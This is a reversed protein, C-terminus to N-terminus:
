SGGQLLSPPRGCIATILGWHWGAVTVLLFLLWRWGRRRDGTKIWFWLFAAMGPLLLVPWTHPNRLLLGLLLFAGALLGASLYHIKRFLGYKRILPWQCAGYRRVMRALGGYNRPRYHAVRAAPNYLLRYGRRRIRLDLDVDEGPWLSEDFGGVEELVQKRYAANCSPNHETEELGSSTKIYDTVFGIAKFFAQVEKGFDTDDPPSIQDGGVGAVQPTLFGKELERLWARDVVCDSDTFAVIAGRAAQMGLNRARSPGGPPVKILRVRSYAACIESTADTSGDDVVIVEYSPHELATAAELCCAMTAQANRAAIVISFVPDPAMVQGAPCGV